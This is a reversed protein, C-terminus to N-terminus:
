PMLLTKYGEGAIVGDFAPRWDDLSYTASILPSLNFYGQEMLKLMLDWSSPMQACNTYIVGEKSMLKDFPFNVPRGALGIQSYVGRKRMVNFCTMYSPAAGTCEFVVDAGGPSYQEVIDVVAEPNDIIVDAGLKKALDLRDRDKPLGSMIVFAGKLKACQLTLQGMAGPGSIFCVDGSQIPTIELANRVCCALPECIALEKGYTITDPIKYVKDAPFVMYEAMAGNARSGISRREDCLMYLGSRCFRCHGCIHYTTLSVVRDGEKFGVVDKGVADVFGTWEHGLIVPPDHRFENKVIHIDTGCIGAALIKVRLQNAQPEPKAVDRLEVCGSEHAYKVLAKM